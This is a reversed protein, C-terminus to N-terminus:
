PKQSHPVFVQATAQTVNGSADQVAYLATYTRGAGKGDRAARLRFSTDYTGLAADQIDNAGAESSTISALVIDPSADCVDTATVSAEIPVLKNNPPWLVSPSLRVNLTPPTIDEVTITAKCTSILEGDSVTLTVTTTGLAFPGNNSLSPEIVGGEPDSSGGDIDLPGVEATCAPGAPVTVNRCVAIPAKNPPPREGKVLPISGGGTFQALHGALNSRRYQRGNVFGPRAATPAGYVSGKVLASYDADSYGNDLFEQFTQDVPKPTFYEQSLGAQAPELGGLGDDAEAVNLDASPSFQVLQVMGASGLLEGSDNRFSTLAEFQGWAAVVAQSAGGVKSAFAERTGPEDPLIGNPIPAEGQRFVAHGSSAIGSEGGLLTYMAGSEDNEGPSGVILDDSTDDNARTVALHMGFLDGASPGGPIGHDGRRLLQSDTGSLGDAGGFLVHISGSGDAGLSAIALDICALGSEGRDGNFNGAALAHGFADSDQPDGEVGTTTKDLRAFEFSSRDAVGDIVLV